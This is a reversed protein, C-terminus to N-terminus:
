FLIDGKEDYISPEGHKIELTYKGEVLEKIRNVSFGRDLLAQIMEELRDQKTERTPM